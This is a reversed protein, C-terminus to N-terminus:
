YCFDGLVNSNNSDIFIWCPGGLLYEGPQLKPSFIITFYKKHKLNIVQMVDIENLIPDERLSKKWFKNKKDITIDMADPNYGMKKIVQDAFIKEEAVDISDNTRHYNSMCSFNM